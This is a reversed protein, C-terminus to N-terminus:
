KWVMVIIFLGQYTWRNNKFWIYTYSYISKRMIILEKLIEYMIIQSYEGQVETPLSSPVYAPPNSIRNVVNLYFCPMTRPVTFATSSLCPLFTKQTWQDDLRSHFPSRWNWYTFRVNIYRCVHICECEYTIIYVNAHMKDCLYLLM